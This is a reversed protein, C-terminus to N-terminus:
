QMVRELDNIYNRVGGALYGTQYIATGDNKLIYITPFGEVAFQQALQQNYLKEDLPLEKEKPFDIKVLILKKEAFEKFEPKSFVEDNLRKCWVCWDSGTFNVLIYKNEAKAKQLASEIKIEWDLGDSSSKCGSFIFLVILGIVILTHKM